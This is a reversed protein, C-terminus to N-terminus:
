CFPGIPFTHNKKRHSDSPSPLMVGPHLIVRKDWYNYSVATCTDQSGSHIVYKGGNNDVEDLYISLSVPAEVLSFDTRPVYIM